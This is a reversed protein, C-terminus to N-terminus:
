SCLRARNPSSQILNGHEKSGDHLYSYPEHLDRILSQSSPGPPPLFLELEGQLFIDWPASLTLDADSQCAVSPFYHIPISQTSTRLVYSVPLARSSM